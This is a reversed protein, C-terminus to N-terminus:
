TWPTRQTGQKVVYLPDSIIDIRNRHKEIQEPSPVLCKGCLCYVTGEKSYRLCSSCQTTRVAEGLEFLEVNGVEKIKRRSAESSVNSTRYGDQLRDVLTKM